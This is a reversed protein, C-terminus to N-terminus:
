SGSLKEPPQLLNLHPIEEPLCNNENKVCEIFYPHSDNYEFFLELRAIRQTIESKIDPTVPSFM